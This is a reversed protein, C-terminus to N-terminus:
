RIHILQGFPVTASRNSICVWIVPIDFPLKKMPKCQMDSFVIAATPRHEIMHERVCVLSTGGRGVIKVEDFPDDEKYITESQIRTDFQALTMKRPQYEEKVYKFESNFRTSDADTISGSTDKYYILHDLKGEDMFRSPLYLNSSAMFRRNPRAWTLSPEALDQMFRHLLTEWPVVPELFKKLILEVHGPMSGPAGSMKAQHMAKVVINVGKILAEKSPAAAMDGTVADPDSGGAGSPVPTGPSGPGGQGGTCPFKLGWANSKPKLGKSILDEYIAEEPMGPPYITGELSAAGNKWCDEIGEFSYGEAELGNNIWIDTAFNWILPDRRGMRIFHLAGPHWLEHVFVTKRAEPKLWTFFRPNWWLSAGDTEATKVAEDWNFDMSCMLSGLFAASKGIFVSSKTRDFDRTLNHYDVAISHDVENVYDMIARLVPRRPLILNM